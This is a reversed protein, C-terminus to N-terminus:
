IEDTNRYRNIKAGSQILLKEVSDIKQSLSELRSKREATWQDTSDMLLQIQKQSENQIKLIKDFQQDIAQYEQGVSELRETEIETKEIQNCFFHSQILMGIGLCALGVLVYPFVKPM